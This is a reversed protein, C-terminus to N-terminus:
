DTKCPENEAGLIDEQARLGMTPNQPISHTQAAQSEPQPATNDGFPVMNSSWQLFVEVQSARFYLVHRPDGRGYVCVERTRASSELVWSSAKSFSAM